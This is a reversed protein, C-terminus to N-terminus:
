SKKYLTIWGLLSGMWPILTTWVLHVKLDQLVNSMQTICVNRASQISFVPSAIQMFHRNQLPTLKKTACTDKKWASACTLSFGALTQNRRHMWIRWLLATTMIILVIGQLMDLLSKHLSHQKSSFCLTKAMLLTGILIDLHYSRCNLWWVKGKASTRTGKLVQLMNDYGLAWNKGDLLTSCGM